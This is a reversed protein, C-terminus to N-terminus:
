LLRTGFHWIEAMSLLPAAHQLFISRPQRALDNHRQLFPLGLLRLSLTELKFM